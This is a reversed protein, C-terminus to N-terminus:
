WSRGPVFLSAEDDSRVEVAKREDSRVEAAKRDDNRRKPLKPRQKLAYRRGIRVAKCRSVWDFKDISIHLVM